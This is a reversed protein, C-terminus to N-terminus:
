TMQIITMFDSLSVFLIPIANKDSQYILAELLRFHFKTTAEYM